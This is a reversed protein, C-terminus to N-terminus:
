RSVESPPWASSEAESECASPSFALGSPHQSQHDVQRVDVNPYSKRNVRVGSSTTQGSDFDDSLFAALDGRTEDRPALARALAGM